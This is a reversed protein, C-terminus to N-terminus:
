CTGVGATRAVFSRLLTRGFAGSLEPHFQCALLQGRELAAVFRGGHDAHAVRCDAPAEVIRYSNAFYAFGTALVTCGPEPTVRNWGLQPVRSPARFRLARGRLVGLGARGQESEESGQFLLQMGLCIALTPRDAAIRARLADCLDHAELATMGADFAGVGPLVVAAASRVTAPDTTLTARAGARELGALVSALNAIGTRVVAVEAASSM